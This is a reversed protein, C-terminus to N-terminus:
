DYNTILFDAFLAVSTVILAVGLNSRDLESGGILLIGIGLGQGVLVGFTFRMSKLM